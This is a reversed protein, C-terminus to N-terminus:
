PRKGFIVKNGSVIVVNGADSSYDNTMNLSSWDDHNLAFDIGVTGGSALTGSGPTIVCVTDANDGDASEFKGTVSSLASYTDGNQMSAYYCNFTMSKAEENTFYYEISIDSLDISDKGVNTITITGAISNVNSGSQNYKVQLSLDGESATSTVNNAPQGGNGSGQNNGGDGSANGSGNGSGKGSGSGLSVVSQGANNGQDPESGFILKGDEYLAIKTTLVVNGNPLGEYSYDNSPDWATKCIMRVQTEKKYNEQGGPYLSDDYLISLYYIHNDEDWTKIGDVNAGQMYNTTIEVDEASGGAAYVESLDIFYRLELNNAKRAPFSSVNYTMCKIETFDDGDVNVAAEVYMEDYTIDEVAGFNVLTQGHYKSYLAAMLGTFGANYDCAVENTTYNSVEDTYGDSADPGGVLAGYLTHRFEAPENMNNAYSGQATRHHPHTPYDEGFGILYSRGSSGLAYNAQSVAFDWYTDAKKSDAGDWRSYVCAIFATTTAYRLSGWSDLWALGKPSYTIREGDATGTTWYDLHHEIEDKYEKEDTLKALMMLCGIHVDDWCMAWDYDHGAAEYYTKAKDLYSKDNTAIYLWISAWSLEDSSGSWSNYFGNAATYGDDSPYKAAFEYLSKAHQLCLKSYEADEDKFVVSAAALSAATEACVAGGPHDKDVKYSPRNTALDVVECPGWFGHDSGGEGVQYYYVEDEPHCKIFYDNAWKINALAYEYQNSDIYSQKDEYLSWALMTSTYSMPLNFKINDGADYWGGTLDINNDSGDGLCSDGRWNCRVTEPLAGSRQLEYFILSKQLAEGYNYDGTGKIGEYGEGKATGVVIHNSITGYNHDSDVSVITEDAEDDSKEEAVSSNGSVDDLAEEIAITEGDNHKKTSFYLLVVIGSWLLALGATVAIITIITRKKM